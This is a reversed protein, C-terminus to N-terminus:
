LNGGLFSSLISTHTCKHTHAHTLWETTDSEAVGHVTYWWMERVMSNELWSYQLPNSHRKRPSRGWEPILGLDEVNCISEKSDSGGPFRSLIPVLLFLPCTKYSFHCLSPFTTFSKRTEYLNIRVQARWSFISVLISKM